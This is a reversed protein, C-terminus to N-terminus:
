AERTNAHVSKAVLLMTEQKGSAKIPFAELCVKAHVPIEIRPTKSLSTLLFGSAYARVRPAIPNSDVKPQFNNYQSSNHSSGM